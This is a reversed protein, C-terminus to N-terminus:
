AEVDVATDVHTHPHAPLHTIRARHWTPQTPLYQLYEQKLRQKQQKKEGENRTRENIQQEEKKGSSARTMKRSM